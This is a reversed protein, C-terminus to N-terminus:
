QAPAGGSVLRVKVEIMSGTGTFPSVWGIPTGDVQYIAGGFAVQDPFGINTGAPVHLTATSFVELTAGFDESTPGPSIACGQVVESVTSFVDNGYEDQGTVIQHLVTIVSGARLTPM